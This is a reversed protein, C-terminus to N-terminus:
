HSVSLAKGTLIHNDYNASCTVEINGTSLGAKLLISAIGAEARAPNDGLLEAPGNVKFEVPLTVTPLVTGDADVIKAYVFILDSGDASLEKGSVDFDIDIRQADTPTYRVFEITEKGNVMGVARLKGPTFTDSKFTFPPHILNNTFKNSDPGQVALLQDNRYLAVRQCNSFIRIEHPSDATWYNAIYVMDGVAVKGVKQEADRQSKFFFYSFKPIRYIDMVGSSELTNSYGRNYDYMVWLGDGVAPTSRNDNHAEQFNMAQQLLRKEGNGRLQRSNREEAKLDSFGPQDLGANQAYYEWDGYESVLCAKDGNQYKHCGGHQRAQIFVDYTRDLWGCTYCQNGPYEQHTIRNTEELFANDMSTENLSVEWLIVSPHNRDRRIMDRCNQFCLEKFKEGGMFQWGPICDMVVLGLEDCAAMFAPAHPYHSLRIYDFGAAKIKYAERYLANDSLAYGIYPYEQHENTGRLYLREGNIQFGSSASFSITRIGMRTDLEDFLHKNGIIQSKLTYLYPHDPHWLNPQILILKQVVHQESGGPLIIAVSEAQKVEAGKEDMLRSIVQVSKTQPSANVVHTQIIIDASNQSVNEYRVFVGGGAVRNAAIADSIHVPELINLIVNRYISGYMCFDLQKLPKGPPVEPNDRNDLKLALINERGFLVAETIELTFPLYGGEHRTLHIGNLWVDAVQMVGEFEICVRKGKYKQDITFHKRYWCIGQWQENVVLPELRPTHPVIVPQWGSDQFTMNQFEQDSGTQSSDLRFFKWDRNFKIDRQFSKGQIATCCICIMIVLSIQWCLRRSM